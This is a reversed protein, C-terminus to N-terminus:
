ERNLASRLTLGDLRMSNLMERVTGTMSGLYPYDEPRAVLGARVPNAAIYRIAAITDEHDRLVREHYGRHWLLQRTSQKWHYASLQKFLRVFEQFDSAEHTGEVLVHLHAPMFCYAIVAFREADAARLLHALVLAVAEDRDFYPAGRFTSITLFYRHFGTYDFSQLRPAPKRAV